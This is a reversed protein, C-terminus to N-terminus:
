FIQMEQSFHLHSHMLSFKTGSSQQYTDFFNSSHSNLFSDSSSCVRQLYCLKAFPRLLIFQFPWFLLSLLMNFSASHPCHYCKRFQCFALSLFLWFSAFPRLLIYQIGSVQLGCSFHSLHQIVSFQSNYISGFQCFAWLSGM